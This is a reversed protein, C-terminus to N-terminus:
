MVIFVGVPHHNLWKVMGAQGQMHQRREKIINVLTTDPISKWKGTRPHKISHPFAIDLSRLEKRLQKVNMSELPQPPSNAAPRKRVGRGVACAAAPRKVM